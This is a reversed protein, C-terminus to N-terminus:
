RRPLLAFHTPKLRFGGDSFWGQGDWHGIIWDDDDLLLCPGFEFSEIGIGAIYDTLAITKIPAAAIPEIM